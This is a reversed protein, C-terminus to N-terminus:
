NTIISNPITVPTRSFCGYFAYHGISTVSDPIIISTLSSCNSFAFDEISTVGDPISYSQEPKGIPYQLLIKQDKSFLVDDIDMYYQNEFDVHIATLSDCGSFAYMGIHTVGDPITISTLSSCDSFAFGEISTVPLGEITAPIIMEGEASENCDTIKVHDECVQYNLGNKLTATVPNELHLAMKIMDGCYIVAVSVVFGMCVIGFITKYLASKMICVAGSIMKQLNFKM